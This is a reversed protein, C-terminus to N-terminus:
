VVRTCVTVDHGGVTVLQVGYTVVSTMGMEVAVPGSLGVVSTVWTMVVIVVVTISGGSVVLEETVPVPMEDVPVVVSLLLQTLQQLAEHYFPFM